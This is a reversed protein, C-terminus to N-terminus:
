NLWFYYLAMVLAILIISYGRILLKDRKITNSLQHIEDKLANSKVISEVGKQVNFQMIDDKVVYNIAGKKLCDVAVQVEMQSSLMIVQTDPQLSKIKKLIALGNMKDSDMDDSLHYDLVVIDPADSLSEICAEGSSFTSINYQQNKVFHRSLMKLVMPDDDVFFINYTRTSSGTIKGPTPTEKSNKTSTIEKTKSAIM